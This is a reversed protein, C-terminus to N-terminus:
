LGLHARVLAVTREAREESYYRDNFLNVVRRHFREAVPSGGRAFIPRLDAYHSSAFLGAAFISALLREKDEVLIHFRWDQFRPELCVPEPIGAAYIANIRRKLAYSEDTRRQVLSRYEDPPPQAARTDLWPGDRYQLRRRERLAAKYDATLRELAREEYPLGHGRYEVGDALVAFGGSGVDVPKAYGTSYLVADVGPPPPEDFRPRCLCRDDVLVLDPGRERVAAFLDERPEEVGYTRVFLVGGYRGPAGRLRDLLRDGDLCLSSEDIDVFEFARGAKLLTLPVIPCVNAPLLWPGDHRASRLLNYLITSARTEHVRNM